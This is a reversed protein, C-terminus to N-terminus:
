LIRDLIVCEVYYIDLTTIVEALLLPRAYV